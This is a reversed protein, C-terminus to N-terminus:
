KKFLPELVLYPNLEDFPLKPEGAGKTVAGPLLVGKPGFMFGIGGCLNAVDRYDLGRFESVVAESADKMKSTPRTLGSAKLFADVVPKNLSAGQCKASLVYILMAKKIAAQDKDDPMQTYKALSYNKEPNEVMTQRWRAPFKEGAFACTTFAFVFLAFVYVSQSLRM